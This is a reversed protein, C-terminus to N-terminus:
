QTLLTRLLVDGVADEGAILVFRRKLEARVRYLGASGRLDQEGLHRLFEQQTSVLAPQVEELRPRAEPRTAVTIGIKLYRSPMDPHLNVIADPLDLFALTPLPPTPREFLRAISGPGAATWYGALGAGVVLALGALGLLLRALPLIVVLVPRRVEGLEAMVATLSRATQMIM